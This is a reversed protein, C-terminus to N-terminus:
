GSKAVTEMKIAEEIYPDGREGGGLCHRRIDPEWLGSFFCFLESIVGHEVIEAESLECPCRLQWSFDMASLIQSAWCRRQLCHPEQAQQPQPPEAM